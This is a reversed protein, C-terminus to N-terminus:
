FLDSVTKRLKNQADTYEIHRWVRDHQVAVIDHAYISGIETFTGEVEATRINGNKNDYMTGFWGNEQLIRDGKSIENTRLAPGHIEIMGESTSMLTAM